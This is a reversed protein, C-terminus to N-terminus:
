DEKAMIILTYWERSDLNEEVNTDTASWFSLSISQTDYFKPVLM